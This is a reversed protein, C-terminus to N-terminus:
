YPAYGGNHYGRNSTYGNGTQSYGFQSQAGWPDDYAFLSPPYAVGMPHYMQARADYDGRLRDPKPAAPTGKSCSLCLSM